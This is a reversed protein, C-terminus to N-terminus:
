GGDGAFGLGTTSMADLRRECGFGIPTDEALEVCKEFAERAGVQDGAELMTLGWEYHAGPADPCHKLFKSFAGESEDPRGTNRYILGLNRYGACFKPQTLTAMKLESVGAEVNGQKYLVWGLNGQALHPTPYLVDKLADRFQAEAEPYRAQDLYLAGLNNSAASFGPRIELARLYAPESLDPRNLSVHYLLGLANHAEAFDPDKAISTMLSKVAQQVNGASQSHLALDYHIGAAHRDPPTTCGAVALLGLTFLTSPIRLM